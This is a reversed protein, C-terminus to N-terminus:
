QRGMFQRLVLTVTLTTNVVTQASSVVLTCTSGQNLLRFARDLDKTVTSDYFKRTLDSFGTGLTGSLRVPFNALSGDGTLDASVAANVEGGTVAMAELYCDRPIVFRKTRAAEPTTAVLDRFSFSLYYGNPLRERDAIVKTMGTTLLDDLDAAEILNLNSITM